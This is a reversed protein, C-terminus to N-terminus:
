NEKQDIMSPFWYWGMNNNDNKDEYMKCYPENLTNHDIKKITMTKGLWKDMLDHKNWHNGKKTSIIKIKDGPKLKKFEKFKM